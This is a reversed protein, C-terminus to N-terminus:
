RVLSYFRWFDNEIPRIEIDTFGTALAYARFQLTRMITGARAAPPATLTTPLCCPGGDSSSGSWTSPKSRSRTPSGSTPWSFPELATRLARMARLAAVPDCMDHIAEFECALDFRGALIRPM